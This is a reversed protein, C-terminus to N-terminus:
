RNEDRVWRVVQATVDPHHLLGAHTTGPVLMTEEPILGAGEASHRRVLLDGALRGVPHHPDDTIVGAVYRHATREVPPALHHRDDDRSITGHRLDKIGASRRNLFDALPRSAASIELARSLNHLGKEIPAGGHPTGLTVVQRVRSVWGHGRGQAQAVGARAVLGGMSHGILDVSRIGAGRGFREELLEALLLGNRGISLGSNFRVAIPEVDTRNRLTAALGAQDDSGHWCRESQMLGHVLIAVRSRGDRDEGSSRVLVMPQALRPGHAGLEDGWLGCVVARVGVDAGTQERRMADVTLGVLSAGARISGYVVGSVTDHWVEM